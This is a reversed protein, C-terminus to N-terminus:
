NNNIIVTTGRTKESFKTGHILVFSKISEQNVQNEFVMNHSHLERVLSKKTHNADMECKLGSEYFTVDYYTIRGEPNSPSISNKDKISYWKFFAVEKGELTKLKYDTAWKDTSELRFIPNGNLTAVGDKLEYKDKDIGVFSLSVLSALLFLIRM